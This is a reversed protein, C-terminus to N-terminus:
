RSSCAARLRALDSSLRQSIAQILAALDQCYVSPNLYGSGPQYRHAYHGAGCVRRVPCARCQDCLGALGVQQAVLSPLTLADALSNTRVHLGTGAAGDGVSRLFDSLGISGDTEIVVIRSPALGLGEFRVPGGFLGSILQEFLRISVEQEKASYWRDFVTTLWDAYPTASAHPTIGPPPSAWNGHPLIFDIAPPEFERLADYTVLPDAALDIVCLLGRFLHRYPGQALQRLNETVLAYSGLGGRHRRHRDNDQEAGDLSVGVQVQLNDLLALYAATLRTGNTQMIIRVSCEAPIRARLTTVLHTLREPGVLLPEGGHLIVRVRTLSHQAIHEAIRDAVQELIEASMKLPQQRWGTDKSEFMYCYDCALDCRGHIKLVFEDFPEPSWGDAILDPIDLTSPWELQM